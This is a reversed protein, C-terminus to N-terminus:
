SAGKPAPKAAAAPKVLASMKEDIQKEISPKIFGLIGPLNVSILVSKAAIVLEGHLGKAMGGESRFIMTDGQWKWVLSLDKVLSKAFVEARLRADAMAFSHSKQIEIAAAM